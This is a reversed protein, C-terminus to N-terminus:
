MLVSMCNCAILTLEGRTHTGCVQSKRQIPSTALTASPPAPLPKRIDSATSPRRPAPPSHPDDAFSVTKLLSSGRRNGGGGAVSSRRSPSPPSIQQKTESRREEDAQAEELYVRWAEEERLRLQSLVHELLDQSAASFARRVEQLRDSYVKPHRSLFLLSM